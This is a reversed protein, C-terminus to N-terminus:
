KLWWWWAAVAAWTQQTSSRKKKKDQQQQKRYAHTHTHTNPNLLGLFDVFFVAARQAFAFFMLLMLLTVHVFFFFVCMSERETSFNLRPHLLCLCGFVSSYRLKQTEVIQHIYIYRSLTCTYTYSNQIVTRAVRHVYQITCIKPASFHEWKLYMKKRNDFCGSLSNVRVSLEVWESNRENVSVVRRRHVNVNSFTFTFRFLHLFSYFLVFCCRFFFFRFWISLFALALALDLLVVFLSISISFIRLTCSESLCVCECVSFIVLFNQIDIRERAWEGYVICSPISQKLKISILSGCMLLYLIVNVFTHFHYCGADWNCLAIRMANCKAAWNGKRKKKQERGM